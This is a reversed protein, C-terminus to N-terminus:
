AAGRERAPCAGQVVCCPRLARETARLSVDRPRDFPRLARAVLQPSLAVPVAELPRPEMAVLGAQAKIVTVGLVKKRLEKPSVSFLEM